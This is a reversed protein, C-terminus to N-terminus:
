ATQPLGLAGTLATDSSKVKAADQVLKETAAKAAQPDGKTAATAIESLNAHGAPSFRSKAPDGILPSTRFLGHVLRRESRNEEYDSRSDDDHLAM